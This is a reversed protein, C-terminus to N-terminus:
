KSHHSSLFDSVAMDSEEAAKKNGEETGGLRIRMGPQNVVGNGRFSHGADEYACIVANSNKSKIIQAMDYSGWMQDDKGVILLIDAKIDQVPILKEDRQPDAALAADYVEKYAVPAEVIMPLIMSKFTVSLPTKMIDICPVEEGEWTWSAGPDNFDLGSFSYASPATLVLGSIDDYKSALYLAYESGKSAAWISIPDHDEIGNAYELVDEFQELPIKTLKEHQNKMGFMFVSLTEYGEKAYKEAVDFAPSGESGGYCIVIGKYKRNTPSLHFGQFTKNDVYKVNVGDIETPYNSLDTVDKTDGPEAKGYKKENYKEMGFVTGVMAIIICIIVLLVKKFRKM